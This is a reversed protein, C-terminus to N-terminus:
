AAHKLGSQEVLADLEANLRQLTRDASHSPPTPDSRLSRDASDLLPTLVRQHLKTFHIAVRYGLDTLTYLNRGMAKRVLGKGRLKRVEYGIRAVTAQEAPVALRETGGSADLLEIAVHTGRTATLKSPNRPEQDSM